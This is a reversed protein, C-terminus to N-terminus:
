WRFVSAVLKQVGRSSVRSKDVVCSTIAPLQPIVWYVNHATSIQLKSLAHNCIFCFLRSCFLQLVTKYYVQNCSSFVNTFSMYLQKLSMQMNIQTDTFIWSAFKNYGIVACNRALALAYNMACICKDAQLSHIIYHSRWWPRSAPSYSNVVFYDSLSISSNSICKWFSAQLKGWPVAAYIRVTVGIKTYFRRPTPRRPCIVWLKM